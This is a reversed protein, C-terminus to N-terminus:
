KKLIKGASKRQNKRLYPLHEFGHFRDNKKRFDAPLLM